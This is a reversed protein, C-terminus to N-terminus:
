FAAIIMGDAGQFRRSYRSFRSLDIDQTRALTTPLASASAPSLARGAPLPGLHPVEQRRRDLQVGGRRTKSYV